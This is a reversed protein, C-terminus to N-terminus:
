GATRAVRYAAIAGAVAAYPSGFISQAAVSAVVGGWLACYFCSRARMFRPGGMVAGWYWSNVVASTRAAVGLSGEVPALSFLALTAAGAWFRPERGAWGATKLLEAMGTAAVMSAAGTAIFGTIPGM